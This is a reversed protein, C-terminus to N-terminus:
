CWGKKAHGPPCFEGDSRNGDKTSVKVDVDKVKGEVRTLQCGGLVSVIFMTLIVERMSVGIQVVKIVTLDLKSGSLGRNILALRRALGHSMVTM